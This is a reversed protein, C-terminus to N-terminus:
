RKETTQADKQGDKLPIPKDNELHEFISLDPPFNLKQYLAPHEM